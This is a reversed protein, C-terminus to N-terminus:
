NIRKGIALTFGHWVILALPATTLLESIDPISDM